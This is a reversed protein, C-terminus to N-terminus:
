AYNINHIMASVPINIYNFLRMVKLIKMCIEVNKERTDLKYAMVDDCM